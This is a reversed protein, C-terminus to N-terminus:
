PLSGLVPLPDLVGEKYSFVRAGFLTAYFRRSQGGSSNRLRFVWHPVLTSGLGPNVDLVLRGKAVVWPGDASGAVSREVAVGAAHYSCYGVAAFALLAVSSLCLFIVLLRPMVTRMMSSDGMGVIPFYDTLPTM